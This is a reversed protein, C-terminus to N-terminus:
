SAFAQPTAHGSTGPLAGAHSFATACSRLVCLSAGNNNGTLKLRFANMQRRIGDVGSQAIHTFRNAQQFSHLRIVSMRELFQRVIQIGAM